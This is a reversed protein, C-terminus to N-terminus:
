FSVTEREELAMNCLTEAIEAAMEEKSPTLDRVYRVGVMYCTLRRINDWVQAWYYCGYKEYLPKRYKERVRDFSGYKSNVSKFDKGTLDKVVEAKIDAILKIREDQNM